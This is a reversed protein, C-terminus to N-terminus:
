STEEYEKGTDINIWAFEWTAFKVPSQAQRAYNSGDQFCKNSATAAVPGYPIFGGAEILSYGDHGFAKSLDNDIIKPGWLKHKPFSGMSNESIFISNQHRPLEQIGEIDQAVHMCIRAADICTIAHDERLSEEANRLEELTQLPKLGNLTFVECGDEAGEPAGYMRRVRFENHNAVLLYGSITKMVLRMPQKLQIFLIVLYM